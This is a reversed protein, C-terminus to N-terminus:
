QCLPHDPERSQLAQSMFERNRPAHAPRGASRARFGPGRASLSPRPRTTRRVPRALAKPADAPVGPAAGTEKGFSTGKLKLKMAKIWAYDARRPDGLARLASVTRKLLLREDPNAAADYDRCDLIASLTRRILPGTLVMVACVSDAEGMAENVHWVREIRDPLGYAQFTLAMKM